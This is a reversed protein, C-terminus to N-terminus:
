CLWSKITKMLDAIYGPAKGEDELESVMDELKDQFDALDKRAREVKEKPNMKLLECLRSFRRLAVEATIPSGRAVNRYWRKVQEDKLL